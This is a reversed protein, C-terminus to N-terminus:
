RGGEDTDWWWSNRTELVVTNASVTFTVAVPTAETDRLKALSTVPDDAPVRAAARTTPDDLLLAVNFFTLFIAQPYVLQRATKM